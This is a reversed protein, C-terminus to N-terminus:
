QISCVASTDTKAEEKEMDKVEKLIKEVELEIDTQEKKVAEM